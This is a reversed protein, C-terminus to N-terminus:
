LEMQKYEDVFRTFHEPAISLYFIIQSDEKTLRAIDSKLGQYDSSREIDVRSYHVTELFADFVGQDEVFPGSETKIFELFEARKFDRRGM